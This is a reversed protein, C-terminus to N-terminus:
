IKDEFVKAFKSIIVSVFRFLQLANSCKLKLVINKHSKETLSLMKGAFCIPSFYFIPLQM